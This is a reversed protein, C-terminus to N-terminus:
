RTEGIARGSCCKSHCWNTASDAARGADGAGPRAQPPQQRQHRQRRRDDEQPGSLKLPGVSGGKPGFRRSRDLPRLQHRRGASPDQGAVATQQGGIRANQRQRNVIAPEFLRGIRDPQADPECQSVRMSRRSLARSAAASAPSTSASRLRSCSRSARSQPRGGSSHRGADAAHLLADHCQGLMDILAPQLSKQGDGPAPRAAPLRGRPEVLGAGGQGFHEGRAAEGGAGDHQGFLFVKMRQELVNRGFDGGLEDRVCASYGPVLIM